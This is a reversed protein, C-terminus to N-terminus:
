YPIISECYHLGYAPIALFYSPLHQWLHKDMCTTRKKKRKKQLWSLVKVSPTDCNFLWTIEWSHDKQLENLLLVATCTYHKGVIKLCTSFTHHQVGNKTPCVTSGICHHLIKVRHLYACSRTISLGVHYM